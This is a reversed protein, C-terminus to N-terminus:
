AALTWDDSTLLSHGYVAPQPNSDWPAWQFWEIPVDTAVAWAVLVPRRPTRVDRELDRVTKRDMGMAEGLEQQTMGAHERAKRLHDGLTFTPTPVLQVPMTKTEM